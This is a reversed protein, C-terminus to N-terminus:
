APLGGGLKTWSDGGDTSKYLGNESSGFPDAIAAVLTKGSTPHVVLDTAVVSPLGRTLQSWTEGGDTSRFIGAPGQAQPHGKAARLPPFGGARSIAAYVIASD